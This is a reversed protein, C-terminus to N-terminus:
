VKRQIVAHGDAAAQRLSAFSAGDVPVFSIRDGIELSAPPTRGPDFLLAPTAGLNYWGTPMPRHAILAQGGAILLSGQPVPPRPKPRRSITLEAPLGGLFVYGPAFGFMYIRYDAGAHLQIIRAPSLSLTAAIEALDESHPPEYCAPVLWHKGAKPAILM